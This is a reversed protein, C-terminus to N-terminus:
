LAATSRTWWAQNMQNPEFSEESPRAWVQGVNHGRSLRLWVSEMEICLPRFQAGKDVDFALLLDQLLNEDVHDAESADADGTVAASKDPALALAARTVRFESRYNNSQM